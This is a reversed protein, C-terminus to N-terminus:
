FFYMCAGINGEGKGQGQGGKSRAADASCRDSGEELCLIYNLVHVEGNNFSM